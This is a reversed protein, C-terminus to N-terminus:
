RDFDVPPELRTLGPIRGLKRDFSVVRGVGSMVAEIAVHCDVFSLGLERPYVDFTERLLQIRPCDIGPLAILRRLENAIDIRPIKFFREMTFVAEFVVPDTVRARPPGNELDNILATSRPSHDANDQMLHRLIINTDL